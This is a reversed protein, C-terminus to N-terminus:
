AYAGASEARLANVVEATDHMRIWEVPPVGDLHANPTTLWDRAVLPDAWVLLAHALVHDIDVLIRAQAPGPVSEGSVWRSPQSAAVNLLVAARRTGGAVETVFRARQEPHWGNNLASTKAQKQGGSRGGTSRVARVKGTTTNKAVAKEAAVKKVSSKRQAM